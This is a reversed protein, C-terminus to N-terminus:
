PDGYGGDNDHYNYARCYRKRHSRSTFVPRGLDDFETPIGHNEASLRAEEVQGPHVALAESHLGDAWPDVKDARQPIHRGLEVLQGNRMVYTTRM